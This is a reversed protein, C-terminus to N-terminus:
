QPEGSITFRLAQLDDVLHDVISTIVPCVDLGIILNHQHYFIVQTKTSDDNFLSVLLNTSKTLLWIFPHTILSVFRMPRAMAKAILEPKALGLRKPVLEGLVMSFYTILIVIITTALGNSYNKLADFQALFAVLDTKLKDGLIPLSPRDKRSMRNLVIISVVAGNGVSSRSVFTPLNM